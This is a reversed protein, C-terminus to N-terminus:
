ELHTCADVGCGHALQPQATAPRIRAQAQLQLCRDTKLVLHASMPKKKPMVDEQWGRAETGGLLMVAWTEPLGGGQLTHLGSLRCCTSLFAGSTYSANAWPRVWHSIGHSLAGSNCSRIALGMLQLTLCRVQDM